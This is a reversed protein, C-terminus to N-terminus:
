LRFLDIDIKFYTHWQNKALSFFYHDAAEQVVWVPILGPIWTHARVLISCTVKEHMPCDKIVSGCMGPCVQGPLYIAILTISDIVLLRDFCLVGPGSPNVTLNWRVNM